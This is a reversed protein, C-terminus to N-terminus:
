AGEGLPLSTATATERAPLSDDVSCTRSTSVPASTPAGIGRASKPKADQRKSEATSQYRCARSVRGSASGASRYRSLAAQIRSNEAPRTAPGSTGTAPRVTPGPRGIPASSVGVITTEGTDDHASATTRCPTARSTLTNAAGSEDTRPGCVGQRLITSRECPTSSTSRRPSHSYRRM